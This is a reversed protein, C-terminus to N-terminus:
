KKVVGMNEFKKIRAAIRTDADMPMLRKLHKQIEKSVSEFVGAHNLWEVQYGTEVGSCSGLVTPAELEDLQFKIYLLIFGRSM